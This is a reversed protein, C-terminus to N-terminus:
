LDRWRWLYRSAYTRFPTWQEAIESARLKLARGEEEIDYLEKISSIVGYDDVPFVDKRALSTMLVMQVTWKGVGKITTLHTIIEENPLKKWDRKQNENENFFTAVNLVYNAKQNSLGVSRLVEHKTNMLTKPSPFEEKFSDLFRKSIITVVKTSLQQGIISYILQPYIPSPKPLKPFPIKDVLKRMIPDNSLHTKIKSQM